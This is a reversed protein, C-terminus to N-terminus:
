TRAETLGSCPSPFSSGITERRSGMQFTSNPWWSTPTARSSTYIGSSRRCRRKRGTPPPSWGRRSGSSRDATRLALRNSRRPWGPRGGLAAGAAGLLFGLQTAYPGLERATFLVLSKNGPVTRFIEALDQMRDVFDGRQFLSTGPVFVSSSMSGTPDTLTDVPTHAGGGAGGPGTAIWEGRSVAAETAKRVAATALKIDTTLYQRIFFGSMSYFGMVAVEDGPRVETELFRLAARFAKARGARDTGQFDLFLFIKRNMVGAARSEEEAAPPLRPEGIMGGATLSHAEFETIKRLKGDEYLKFDEKTLGLVPRGDEGLVRVPVLKVVAATEHRLPMGQPPRDQSGAGASGAALIAAGFVLVRAIRRAM